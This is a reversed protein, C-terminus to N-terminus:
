RGTLDRCAVHMYHSSPDVLCATCAMRQPNEEQWWKLTIKIRRIAHKADMASARLYRLAMDDAVVANEEVTLRSRVEEIAEATDAAAAADSADTTTTIATTADPLPEEALSEANMNCSGNSLRDDHAGAEM